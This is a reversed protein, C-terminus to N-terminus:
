QWTWTYASCASIDKKGRFKNM